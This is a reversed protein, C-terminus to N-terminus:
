RENSLNICDEYNGKRNQIAEIIKNAHESNIEVEVKEIPELKKKGQFKYIVTPPYISMEFGERRM